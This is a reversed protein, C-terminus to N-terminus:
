IVDEDVIIPYDAEAPMADILLAYNQFNPTLEGNGQLNINTSANGVNGATISGSQFLANGSLILETEVSPRTSFQIYLPLNGFYSATLVTKIDAAVAELLLNANISISWDRIGSIYEKWGGSDVASAPLLERNLNITCSVECSTFAGNIKVGILKGPIGPM